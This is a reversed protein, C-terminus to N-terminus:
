YTRCIKTSDGDECKVRQGGRGLAHRRHGDATEPNASWETLSAQYLRVHPYELLYKLVFWVASAERGTM